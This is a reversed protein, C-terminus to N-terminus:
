GLAERAHGFARDLASELRRMEASAYAAYDGDRIQGLNAKVNLAAGASATHLMELGVGLDSAAAPNGSRAAVIAQQGSAESLRMVELPVDTSRRLGAQVADQRRQKEADTGKPLRYAQVVSDYAATDEDVLAALRDRLPGVARAVADLADREEASGTRTKPLSAVMLVLSAGLAGALAATAGGGPAATPAAIADLLERAPRDILLAM